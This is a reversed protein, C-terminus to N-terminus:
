ITEEVVSFPALNSAVYATSVHSLVLLKKCELALDLVKVTGM